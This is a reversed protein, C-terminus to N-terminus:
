FHIGGRYWLAIVDMSVAVSIHIAVGMWISRTMLSLTGLALGALISGLTEPMPKGFHIMCYPMVAVLVAYIGFRKKLGHVMFGRFFFELSMFQLMYAIEWMVFDFVSRGAQKYFPYMRQFSDTGGVLFLCPLIVAFMAAYWWAHGLIGEVRFGYDRIRERTVFKIYLVPGVVYCLSTALSWYWLKALRGYEKDKFIASAWEGADKGFMSVIEVFTKYHGSSGYYEQVSLMVSACIIVGVVGWDIVKGKNEDRYRQTDDEVARVNHQFKEWAQEIRQRMVEEDFVGTVVSRM